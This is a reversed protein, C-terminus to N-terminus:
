NTIKELTLNLNIEQMSYVNSGIFRLGEYIESYTLDDSFKKYTLTTNPNFYLYFYYTGIGYNTQNVSKLNDQFKITKYQDESIKTESIYVYIADAIDSNNVLTRFINLKDEETGQYLVDDSGEKYPMYYSNVKYLKSLSVSRTSSSNMIADKELDIKAKTTTTNINLKLTDENNEDDTRLDIQYALVKGPYLIVDDTKSDSKITIHARMENGNDISLNFDNIKSSNSVSFWAYVCCCFCLLSFFVGFISTFIATKNKM